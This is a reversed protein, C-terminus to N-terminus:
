DQGGLLAGLLLAGFLIPVTTSVSEKFAAAQASYPQGHQVFNAFHECNNELYNYNREGMRSLARNVAEQRQYNNGNFRQIKTPDMLQLFSQLEDYTIRTTGKTYNAMFFPMGQQDYGLFVAYHDVMGFLKKKLVIVDAQQLNNANIFNTVYQM